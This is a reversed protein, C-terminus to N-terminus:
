ENSIQNLLLKEYKDNIAVLEEIVKNLESIKKNSLDLEKKLNSESDSLPNEDEKNLLIAIESRRDPNILSLEKLHNRLEDNGKTLSLRLLVNLKIKAKIGDFIVDCESEYPLKPIIDETESRTLVLFGHKYSTGIKFSVKIHNENIGDINSDYFAGKENETLNIDMVKSDVNTCEDFTINSKKASFIPWDLAELLDHEKIADDLNIHEGFIYEQGDINKHIIYLGNKKSIFKNRIM